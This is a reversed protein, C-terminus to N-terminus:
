SLAAGHEAALELLVDAHCPHGDLPCACCLDHGILPTIWENFGAPDRDRFDTAMVRFMDVATRRAIILLAPMNQRKGGHLHWSDNLADNLRGGGSFDPQKALTLIPPVHFPNGWRSSRTVLKAGAPVSQGRKIQLRTNLCKVHEVPQDKISEPWDRLKNIRLKEIGAEIVEGFNIGARRSSDMLLLLCDAYEMRDTPSQELEQAEKILHRIPGLPGRTGDSGFTQQSWFSHQKYLLGIREGLLRDARLNFDIEDELMGM